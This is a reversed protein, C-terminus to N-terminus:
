PRDLASAPLDIATCGDETCTMDAGCTAGVCSRLLDMRLLRIRDEVFSVRAERRLVEVDRRQGSVVIHFPGLPGAEHELIVTRPLPFESPGLDARSMMESADPATVTVVIADIEGPDRLDTDVRVAIETAGDGGGGGCGLLAITAPLLGCLRVLSASKRTLAM